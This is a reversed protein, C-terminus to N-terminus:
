GFILLPARFSSPDFRVSSHILSATLNILRKRRIGEQWTTWCHATVVMNTSYWLLVYTVLPVLIDLSIM